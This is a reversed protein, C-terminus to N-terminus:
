ECRLAQAPQRPQRALEPYLTAAVLRAVALHDRDARHRRQQPDSPMRSIVYVSGPLFSVGLAREIAPVITDIHFAVLTGFLM